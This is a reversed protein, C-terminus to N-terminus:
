AGVPVEAVPADSAGKSPLEKALALMYRAAELLEAATVDEVVAADGISVPLVFRRVTGLHKKDKATADVLRQANLKLAPLPGYLYVVRMLRQFQVENITKRQKGLYLAAILGWGVAEGHLSRFLM